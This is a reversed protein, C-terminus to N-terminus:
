SLRARARGLHGLAERAAVRLPPNSLVIDTAVRRPATVIRRLVATGGAREVVGEAVQETHDAFLHKYNHEGRGLEDPRCGTIKM